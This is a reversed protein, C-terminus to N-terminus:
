FFLEKAKEIRESYELSLLDKKDNNDIAKIESVNELCSLVTKMVKYKKWNETEEHDLNEAKEWYDRSAKYYELGYTNGACSSCHGALEFALALCLLDKTSESEYSNIQRLAEEIFNLARKFTISATDKRQVNNYLLGSYILANIDKHFDGFNPYRYSILENGTFFVGIKYQSSIELCRGAHYVFGIQLLNKVIADVNERPMSAINTFAWQLYSDSDKFNNPSNEEPLWISFNDESM